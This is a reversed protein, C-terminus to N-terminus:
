VGVTIDLYHEIEYREIRQVPWAARPGRPHMGRKLRNIAATQVVGDILCPRALKQVRSGDTFCGCTGCYVVGRLYKLRHSVHLQHGGITPALGLKGLIPRDPNIARVDWQDLMPCPLAQEVAQRM